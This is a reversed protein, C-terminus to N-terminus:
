ECRPEISRNVQTLPETSKLNTHVCKYNTHVCKNNQIEMNVNVKLGMLLIQGHSEYVGLQM